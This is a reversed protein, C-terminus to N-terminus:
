ELGLELDEIAKYIGESFADAVMELVEEYTPKDEELEMLVVIGNLTLVYEKAVEHLHEELGKPLKKKQPFMLVKAM